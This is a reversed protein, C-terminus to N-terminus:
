KDINKQCSERSSQEDAQVNRCPRHSPKSHTQVIRLLPGPELRMKVIIEIPFIMTHILAWLGFGLKTKPTHFVDLKGLQSVPAEPKMEQVVPQKM